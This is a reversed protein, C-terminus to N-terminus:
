KMKSKVTKVYEALFPQLNSQSIEQYKESFYLFDKRSLREYYSLMPNIMLKGEHWFLYGSAILWELNQRIHFINSTLANELKYFKRAEIISKSYKKLLTTNYTFSGDAGSQYLLWWLLSATNPSMYLSVNCFHKTVVKTCKNPALIPLEPFRATITSKIRKTNM